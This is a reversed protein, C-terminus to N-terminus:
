KNNTLKKLWKPIVPNQEPIRAYPTSAESLVRGHPVQRHCDWCLHGKGHQFNEFTVNSASVPNVTESHCRICNEQVVSKGADKIMIVQPESYTSFISAHRLGDQAKFLYKKIVNDHPVHCSNCTTWERHSSHFWTAYHPTMVHYNVCAEPDDSLYSTANSLHAAVFAIGTLIGTLIIVPRQWSKPPLIKKILRKM